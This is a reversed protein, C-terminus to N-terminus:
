DYKYSNLKRDSTFTHPLGTLPDTFSLSKALLQLPNDYCTGKDKQLFPYFPDNLIPAGLAAMHIRLQHKKGSAPTLKYLWNNGHKSIVDIFTESNSDGDTECMRFFPAGKKICSSRRHPFAINSLPPAVAQYTKQIKSKAFLTQYKGRTAPNKCFAVIGATERDLRHIPVLHDLNLEHQLRVLLTEYIFRGSPVTPLFHPKDAVVLHDDMYIITEKFPIKAEHDLERYYFLHTDSVYPSTPGFPQANGDVVEGKKMRETWQDASVDNFHQVLFDLIRKWHGPRLWVASPSLGNRNPLPKRISLRELKM